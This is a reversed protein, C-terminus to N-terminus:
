KQLTRASPDTTDSWHPMWFYPIIHGTNPYEKEYIYRYYKQENTSPINHTVNM